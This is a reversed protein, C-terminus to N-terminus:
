PWRHDERALKSVSQLRDGLDLPRGDHLDHTEGRGRVDRLAPLIRLKLLAQARGVVPPQNARPSTSAAALRTAVVVAGLYM